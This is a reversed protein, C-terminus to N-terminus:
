QKPAWGEPLTGPIPWSTFTSILDVGGEGVTESCIRPPKTLRGGDIDNIGEMYNVGLFCRDTPGVVNKLDGPIKTTNYKPAYWAYKAGQIEVYHLTSKATDRPAPGLKAAKVLVWNTLGAFNVNAGLFSSVSGTASVKRARAPKPRSAGFFVPTATAATVAEQGLASGDAESISTQFGYRAVYEQGVSVSVKRRDKYPM